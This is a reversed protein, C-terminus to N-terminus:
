SNDKIIITNSYGIDFGAQDLGNWAIQRNSSESYLDQGSTNGYWNSGATNQYRSFQVNFWSQAQGITETPMATRWSTNTTTLPDFMTGLALWSGAIRTGYGDQNYVQYQFYWNPGTNMPLPNTITSLTPWVPSTTTTTRWADSKIILVGTATDFVALRCAQNASGQGGVPNWATYVSSTEASCSVVTLWKDTYQTHTGPLTVSLSQNFTGFQSAILFQKIAGSTNLSIQNQFQYTDVGNNVLDQQVVVVVTGAAAGNWVSSPFYLHNVRVSRLNNFGTFGTLGTLDITGGTVGQTNRNTNNLLWSYTPSQYISTGLTSTSSFAVDTLETNWWGAYESARAAGLM